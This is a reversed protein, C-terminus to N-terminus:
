FCLNLANLTLNDSNQVINFPVIKHEVVIMLLLDGFIFLCQLLVFCVSCTKHM